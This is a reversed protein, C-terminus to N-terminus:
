MALVLLILSCESPIFSLKCFLCNVNLLLRNTQWITDDYKHKRYKLVPSEQPYKFFVQTQTVNYCLSLRTRMQKRNNANDLLQCHCPFVIKINFPLLNLSVPVLLHIVWDTIKGWLAFKTRFSGIEWSDLIGRVGLLSWCNIATKVHDWDSVAAKLRYVAKRLCL